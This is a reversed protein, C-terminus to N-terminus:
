EVEKEIIALDRLAFGFEQYRKLVEVQGLAQWCCASRAQVYIAKPRKNSPQPSLARAFSLLWGLKRTQGYESLFGGEPNQLITTGEVGWM